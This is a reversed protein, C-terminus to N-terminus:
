WLLIATRVCLTPVVTFIWILRGKQPVYTFMASGVLFLRWLIHRRILTEVTQKCITMSFNSYFPFYWGVVRSISISQDLHYSNSIGNSMFPYYGVHWLTHYKFRIEYAGKENPQTMHTLVLSFKYKRYKIHKVNIM